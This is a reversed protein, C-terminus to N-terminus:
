LAVYLMKFRGYKTYEDNILQVVKSKSRIVNIIPNDFFYNVSKSNHFEILLADLIWFFNDLDQEKEQQLIKILSLAGSDSTDERLISLIDCFQKQKMLEFLRDILVQTRSKHLTVIAVVVAIVTAIDAVVSMSLAIIQFADM